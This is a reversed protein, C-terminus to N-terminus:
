TEQAHNVKELHRLMAGAVIDIQDTKVVDRGAGPLRHRALGALLASTRTTPTGRPEEGQPIDHNSILVITSIKINLVASYHQFAGM